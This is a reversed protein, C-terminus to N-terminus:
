FIGPSSEFSSLKWFSGGIEKWNWSVNPWVLNKQHQHFFQLDSFVQMEGWCVKLCLIDSGSSSLPIEEKENEAAAPFEQPRCSTKHSRCYFLLAPTPKLNDESCPRDSSGPVSQLIMWRCGPENQLMWQGREQHCWFAAVMCTRETNTGSFIEREWCGKVWKSAKFTRKQINKKRTHTHCQFCPLAKHFSSGSSCQM